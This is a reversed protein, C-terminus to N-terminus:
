LLHDEICGGTTELPDGANCQKNTMEANYGSNYINYTHGLSNMKMRVPWIFDHASHLGLPVCACSPYLLCLPDFWHVSADDSPSQLPIPM